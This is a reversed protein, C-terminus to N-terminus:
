HGLKSIEASRILEYTKELELDAKNLREQITYEVNVNPIVGRGINPAKVATTIRFHPFQLRLKTAPLVVTSIIGGNCGAEGGGTERGVLISKRQEKLSAVFSSAASFTQEGILIYLNGKFRYQEYPKHKGVSPVNLCYTGEGCKKVIRESFARSADQEEVDNNLIFSPIMVPAEAHSTLVFTSDMLYKMLDLAIEHNGGSNQRLDIILNAAHNQEIEQFFREHTMLFSEYDDYSFSSIRLLATSAVEKPFSLGRLRTLRRQTEDEKSLRPPRNGTPVRPKFELIQSKVEGQANKISFQYKEKGGFVSLYYEDFFGAELTADKFAEGYGDAPLYKRLTRLIKGATNGEIELVESGLVLSADNSENRAIFLRDGQIFFGLPLVFSRNKAREWKRTEPSFRLDTHGCRIKAVLPKLLLGFDKETMEDAIKKYADEFAINMSEKSTYWNVGPHEQELISRLYRFDARLEVKSFKREYSIPSAAGQGKVDQSWCFLTVSLIVVCLLRM